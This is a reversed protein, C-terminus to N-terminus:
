ANGAWRKLRGKGIRTCLASYLAKELASSAGSLQTLTRALWNRLQTLGRAGFYELSFAHAEAEARALWVAPQPAYAFNLGKGMDQVHGLEHTLACLQQICLDLAQEEITLSSVQPGDGQIFVYHAIQGDARTSITLGKFASSGNTGALVGASAYGADHLEYFVQTSPDVGISELLATGGQEFSQRPCFHIAEVALGLKTAVLSNLEAAYCNNM